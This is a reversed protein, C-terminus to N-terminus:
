LQPFLREEEHAFKSLFRVDAAARSDSEDFELLVCRKGACEEPACLGDTYFSELVQTSTSCIGKFLVDKGM